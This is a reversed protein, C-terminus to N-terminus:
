VASSNSEEGFSQPADKKMIAAVILNIITLFFMGGFLAMVAMIPPKTFMRAYHMAMEVQDAPMGKAEMLTEQKMMESEMLGPAIYSIFIFTWIAMAISYYLAFITQYRMAKGYSMVGQLEKDRWSKLAYVLIAIYFVYSLNNWMSNTFGALYIGLSFAIVTFVAAIGYTLAHKSLTM